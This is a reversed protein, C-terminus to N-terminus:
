DDPLMGKLGGQGTSELVARRLESYINLTRHKRAVLELPLHVYRSQLKAVVMNTCGAM